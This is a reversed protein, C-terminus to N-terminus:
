LDDPRIALWLTFLVLTLTLSTVSGWGWTPFRHRLRTNRGCGKLELALALAHSRELIGTLLALFWATLARLRFILIQHRFSIGRSELALRLNHSEHLLIPFFQFGLNLILIIDSVPWGIRRAPSLVWGLCRSLELPSTTTILHASVLVLAALRVLIMGSLKLGEITVPLQFPGLEPLPHGPTLLLQLSATVILLILFPRFGAWASRFGTKSVLYLGMLVLYVLFLERWSRSVLIIGSLTM